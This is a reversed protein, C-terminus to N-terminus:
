AGGGIFLMYFFSSYPKWLPNLIMFLYPQGTVYGLLLIGLFIKPAHQVYRLYSQAKEAPLLSLLIKSGDLPPIPLLNFFSLGLNIQFAVALFRVFDPPLKYIMGGAAFFRLLIGIIAALLINSVPGAVSVYALDRKPNDLNYPNVPVPKAWGFPGFLIMLTGFLDLHSIPNFTLRGANKATTDGKRWAVYGHAYEHVTLALLIAPFRILISHPDLM